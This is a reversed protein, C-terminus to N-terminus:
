NMSEIACESFWTEAGEHLSIADLPITINDYPSSYILNNERLIELSHKGKRYPQNLIAKKATTSIEIDGAKAKELVSNLGRRAIRKPSIVKIRIHTNELTIRLIPSKTTTM